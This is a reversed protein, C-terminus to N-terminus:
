KAIIYVVFGTILLGTIDIFNRLAKHKKFKTSVTNLDDKNQLYLQKYNDSQQQQNILQNGLTVIYTAANVLLSDRYLLQEKTLDLETQTLNAIDKISDCKTLDVAIQKAVTVPIRITDTATQAKTTISILVTLLILINKM